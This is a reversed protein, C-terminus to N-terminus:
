SGLFNLMIRTSQLATVAHMNNDQIKLCIQYNLKKQMPRFNVFNSKRVNITLKNANLWDCVNKLENNLIAELSQLNKDAYLLNTDDAFM